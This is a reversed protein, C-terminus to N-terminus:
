EISRLYWATTMRRYPVGTGKVMLVTARMLMMM